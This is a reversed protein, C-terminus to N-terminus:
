NSKKHFFYHDFALYFAKAHRVILVAFILTPVVTFLLLQTTSLEFNNLLFFLLAIGFIAAVGYDLAWFALLFYGPEQDYVYNCRPCGELTVFWDTISKVEKVPCFLPSIGCVPCKLQASRYAYLRAKKAPTEV